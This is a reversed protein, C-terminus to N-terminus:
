LGVLSQRLLEIDVVVEVDVDMDVDGEFPGLNIDGQSLIAPGTGQLKPVM